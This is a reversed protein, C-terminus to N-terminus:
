VRRATVVGVLCLAGGAVALAGPVEGLLAWSMAIEIPPV